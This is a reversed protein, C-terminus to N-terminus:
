KRKAGGKAGALSGTPLNGMAEGRGGKDGAAGRQVAAAKSALSPMGGAGGLMQRQANAHLGATQNRVPGMVQGGPGAQMMGGQQAMQAALLEPPIQGGGKGGPKAAAGGQGAAAPGGM